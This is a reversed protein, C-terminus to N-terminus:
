LRSVTPVAAPSTTGGGAAASRRLMAHVAEYHPACSRATAAMWARIVPHPQLLEELDVGHKEKNLMTLQELECCMLLDAVSVQDGAVFASNRLWVGELQQLAPRLLELGEQAIHERPEAGLKAALVKHFVLRACGARINSHYWHLASELTARRQLCRRPYWHDPVQDQFNASLYSLIAASEPLCFGSDLLCPVKGFPNKARFSPSRTEGKHILVQTEEVPLSNMRCFIMCARSPQSMVDICLQM